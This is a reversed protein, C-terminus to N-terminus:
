KIYRDVEDYWERSYRMTNMFNCGHIANADLILIGVISNMRSLIYKDLLEYETDTLIETDRYWTTDDGRRVDNRASEMQLPDVSKLKNSIEILVPIDTESVVSICSIFDADHEDGFIVVYKM